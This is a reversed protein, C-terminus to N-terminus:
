KAEGGKTQKEDNVRKKRLCKLVRKQAENQAISSRAVSM